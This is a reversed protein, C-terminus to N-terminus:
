SSTPPLRAHLWKEMDSIEQPDASHELLPFSHWEVNHGLKDRLLAETLKGWRYRVVGDLEGHALFIDTKKNAESVLSEINRHLPLWTSLGVIGGLKHESTLGALLALAGGQSFGGLIIRESAIGKNIQEQIIAHINRASGLIGTEDESALIDTLSVIDFWGPMRMGMNLSIPIMPAHPFIFSCEDFKRRLRFNESVSSWGAGSDGLGHLFIFTATHKTAAPVVIAAASTMATSASTFASIPTTIIKVEELPSTYNILSLPTFASYYCLHSIATIVLSLLYLPTLYSTIFPM